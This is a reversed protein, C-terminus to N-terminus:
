LQLPIYTAAEFKNEEQIDDVARFLVRNGLNSNQIQQVVGGNRGRAMMKWRKRKPSSVENEEAYEVLQISSFEELNFIGSSDVKNSNLESQVDLVKDSIVEFDSRISVEHDRCIEQNVVLVVERQEALLRSDVMLEIDDKLVGGERVIDTGLVSDVM